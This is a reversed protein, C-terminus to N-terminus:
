YMKEVVSKATKEISGSTQDKKRLTVLTSLIDLVHIQALKSSFAGGQLPTERSSALLIADAYHTIPSRAHNTICIVFAENGKALRIADVLDKTSGSTSIGVVVDERSVLACNMAIIHSDTACDVNFGLRMFRYKADGATNGSSGVGFFYIKGGRILADAARQLQLEDLLDRTDTLAKSNYSTIKKSITGIDDTEEIRGHVNDAPGVLDQAVALKFEQYGRFGLKRCFRIVSTEGVDAMESLDTVSAYVTEETSALVVDAVKQEAKTLANYISSIMVLPSATNTNKKM